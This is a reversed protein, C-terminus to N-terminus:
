VIFGDHQRHVTGARDEFWPTLHGDDDRNCMILAVTDGPDAQRYADAMCAFFRVVGDRHRTVVWSSAPRQGNADSLAEAVYALMRREYLQETMQALKDILLKFAWRVPTRAGSEWDAITRHPIELAKSMEAQTMGARKRWTAITYDRIQLEGGNEAVEDEATQLCYDVDDVVYAETEDIYQLRGATYFDEAWDIGNIGILKVEVTRNGDTIKM